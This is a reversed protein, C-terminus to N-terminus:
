PDREVRPASRRRPVFAVRTIPRDHDTVSRDPPRDAPQESVVPDFRGHDLHVQPGDFGQPTFPRGHHVPVGGVTVRQCRRAHVPRPGHDQARGPYGTGLLHHPQCPIQAGARAHDCARRVQPLTRGKRPAPAWSTYVPSPSTASAIVSDTRRASPAVGSWISRSRSRTRAFRNPPAGRSPFCPGSATEYDGTEPSNGGSEDSQRPSLRHRSHAEPAWPPSRASPEKSGAADHAGTERDRPGRNPGVQGRSGAGCLKVAQAEADPAAVPGRGRGESRGRAGRVGTRGWRGAGHPGRLVPRRGM